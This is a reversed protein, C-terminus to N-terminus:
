SPLERVPHCASYQQLLDHFSGEHAALQDPSLCFLAGQISLFPHPHDADWHFVGAATKAVSQLAQHKDILEPGSMNSLAQSASVVAKALHFKTKGDAEKFFDKGAQITRETRQLMEKSAAPKSTSNKRGHLKAIGWNQIQAKRLATGPAVGLRRAVERISLGSVVLARFAAWDVDVRKAM